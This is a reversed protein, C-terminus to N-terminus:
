TPCMNPKSFFLCVFLCVFEEEKRQVQGKHRKTDTKTGNGEDTREEAEAM